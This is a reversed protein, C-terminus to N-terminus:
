LRLYPERYGPATRHPHSRQTRDHPLLCRRADLQFPAVLAGTPCAELCRTCSGCRNPQAPDPELELTTLIEALFFWNGLQRSVLNTHKGVFGVGARQAM